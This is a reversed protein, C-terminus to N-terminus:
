GSHLRGQHHRRRLRRMSSIILKTHKENLIDNDPPSVICYEGLFVVMRKGSSVLDGLVPWDDFSLTNPSSSPVFAYSDIGSKSFTEGFETVDVSDGNTLLLTVMENANADLWQKVTVLFSEFTGADELFCSTHCLELVNEDTPSHHTQAQLYRIGMDLQAQIDINQNQQPLDGVFPADHSGIFTINSYPRTCYETRGNCAPAATQSISRTATSSTPSQQRAGDTDPTGSVQIAQAFALFTGFLARILGTRLTSM